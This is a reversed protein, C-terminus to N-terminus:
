MIKANKVGDHQIIKIELNTVLERSTSLVVDDKNKIIAYGRDLVNNPNLANLLQFNKELQIKYHEVGVKFKVKFKYYIEDLRQQYQYVNLTQEPRNFIKIDLLKQKINRVRKLLLLEMSKPNNTEIRRSLNLYFKRFYNELRGKLNELSMLIQFEHHTIIEAAASPTEARFDAVFDLITFDTQHGIASIIPIDFKFVERALIEDNFSNLDEVSGGGRCIVVCDFHCNHKNEYLKIKKLGNIVSTSSEDGQMVAPVVLIDCSKSRRNHINLFDQLAASKEASIVAIKTPYKPLSKKQAPEFLGEDFLKRKLLEFKAKLDGEGVLSIKKIILQIQGRKEYLSLEAVVEIQDGNKILNIDPIRFADGRFVVANILSKEDSLSFYYHGNGSQSLNSIEGKVAIYDFHNRLTKRVQEILDSVTPTSIKNSM